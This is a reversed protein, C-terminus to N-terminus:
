IPFFKKKKISLQLISHECNILHNTNNTLTLTLMLNFVKLFLEKSGLVKSYRNALCVGLRERMIIVRRVMVIQLSFIVKLLLYIQISYIKSLVRTRVRHVLFSRNKNALLKM